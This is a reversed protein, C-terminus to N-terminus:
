PVLRPSDDATIAVVDPLAGPPDCREDSLTTAAGNLVAGLKDGGGGRRGADATETVGKSKHKEGLIAQEGDDTGEWCEEENRGDVVGNADIAETDITNEKSEQNDVSNGMDGSAGGVEQTLARALQKEVIETGDIERQVAQRQQLLMAHARMDRPVGHSDARSLPTNTQAHNLARQAATPALIAICTYLLRFTTRAQLCCSFIYVVSGPMHGRRRFCYRFCKGCNRYRVNGDPRM